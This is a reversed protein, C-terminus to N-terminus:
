ATLHTQKSLMKLAFFTRGDTWDVPGTWWDLGTITSQRYCGLQEWVHLFLFLQDVDSIVSGTCTCSTVQL